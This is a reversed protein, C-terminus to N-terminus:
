AAKAKAGGRTLMMVVILAVGIGGGILLHSSKIGGPGKGGGGAAATAEAATAATEVEDQLQTMDVEGQPVAAAAAAGAEAAAQAQEAPTVPQGTAPNIPAEGSRSTQQLVIAIISLLVPIAAIVAAASIPEGFAGFSGYMMTTEEAFPGALQALMFGFPPTQRTLYSKTWSRAEAHEAATPTTSKRRDWAIKRARRTKLTNIKSVVPRLATKSLGTKILGATVKTQKIALRTPIEHAKMALRGAQDVGPLVGKNVAKTTLSSTVRLPATVVRSVSKPLVKQAAKVTLNTPITVTKAAAKVVFKTPVTVTKTVASAAKKVASFPSFGLDAADELSTQGFIM